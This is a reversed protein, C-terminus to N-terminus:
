KIETMVGYFMISFRILNNKIPYIEFNSAFEMSSLFTKIDRVIIEDTEIMIYGVSNNSEHIGCIIKADPTESLVLQQLGLFAKKMIKIREPNIIMVSSIESKEKLLELFADFQVDKDLGDMDFDEYNM